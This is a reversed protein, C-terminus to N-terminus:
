YLSGFDAEISLEVEHSLVPAALRLEFVRFPACYFVLGFAGGLLGSSRERGQYYDPLYPRALGLFLSGGGARKWPARATLSANPAARVGM